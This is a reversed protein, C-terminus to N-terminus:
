GFHIWLTVDSFHNFIEKQVRIEQTLAKLIFNPQHKICSSSTRIWATVVLMERRLYWANWIKSLMEELLSENVKKMKMCQHFLDSATLHSFSFFPFLFLKEPRLLVPFGSFSQIIGKIFKWKQVTNLYVNTCLIYILHATLLTPLAM